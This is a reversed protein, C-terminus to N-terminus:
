LGYFTKVQQKMTKARAAMVKCIAAPINAYDLYIEGVKKRESNEVEAVEQYNLMLLDLNKQRFKVCFSFMLYDFDKTLILRNDEVYPGWPTGYFTDFRGEPKFENRDLLLDTDSNVRQGLWFSLGCKLKISYEYAGTRSGVLKM